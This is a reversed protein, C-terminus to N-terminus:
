FAYELSISTFRDTGVRGAPVESNSKIRYSLVLGIDGILRARLASIAEVSTNSSGSEIVLDQKFGTTESLTLVYDMAARVIGESRETGDILSAQRAGGGIEGNLVHRGQNILRRGYGATESIERDYASFRDKRWDLSTFLYADGENFLRRAEYGASYAEATTTEATTAAVATLDFEHNWRTRSYLLGFSGNANTSETNGSTALYGLAVQGKLPDVPAPASGQAWLHGTAGLSCLLLVRGVFQSM